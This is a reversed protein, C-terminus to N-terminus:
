GRRQALAASALWVALAVALAGVLVTYRNERVWLFLQRPVLSRLWSGSAPAQEAKAGGGSTSARAASSPKWEAEAGGASNTAGAPPTKVSFFAAADTGAATGASGTARKAASRAEEITSTAHRETVPANGGKDQMEILLDITKADERRSSKSGERYANPAAQSTSSPTRADLSEDGPTVPASRASSSFILVGALAALRDLHRNRRM